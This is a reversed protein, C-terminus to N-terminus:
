KPASIAAAVHHSSLWTHHAIGVGLVFLTPGWVISALWLLGRWNTRGGNLARMLGAYQFVNM